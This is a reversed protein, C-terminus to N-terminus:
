VAAATYVYQVQVTFTDWEGATDTQVTFENDNVTAALTADYAVTGDVDTVFRRVTGFNMIGSLGGKPAHTLTITSGTVVVDELIPLPGGTRAAEDAYAKVAASSPANTTPASVALDQELGAKLVADDLNIAQTVTLYDVKVMHADTFANTDANSEYATKISAANISNELADQDSLKVWSTVAGNVDITMPKYMAWKTDGDDAVFIRDATDLGTLADREAITAVNYNTGLALSAADIEALVEATSYVDLNTRAIGFDNLDSLNNAIQLAADSGSQASGLVENLAAVLNTKETTLLLSLDGDATSRAQSEAAIDSGLTQLASTLGLVTSKSRKIIAM